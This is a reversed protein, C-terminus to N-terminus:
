ATLAVRPEFVQAAGAIEELLAPLEPARGEAVLEGITRFVISVMMELQLEPLLEVDDAHRDQETSLLRVYRARFAERIERLQEDGGVPAVFCLHAIAPEEALRRLLRQLAAGLKESWTDALRFSAAYEGYLEGSARRYADAVVAAAGEPCHGEAAPAPIGAAAALDAM